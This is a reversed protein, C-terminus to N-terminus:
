SSVAGELGYNRGRNAVEYARNSLRQAIRYLQADPIRSITMGRIRTYYIGVLAELETRSLRSLNAGDYRRILERAKSADSDIGKRQRM